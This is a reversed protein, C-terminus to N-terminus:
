RKSAEEGHLPCDVDVVVIEGNARHVCTCTMQHKGGV